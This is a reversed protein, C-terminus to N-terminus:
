DPTIESLIINLEKIADKSYKSIRANRLQNRNEKRSIEVYNRIEEKLAYDSFLNLYQKLRTTIKEKSEGSIEVELYPDTIDNFKSLEIKVDDKQFVWSKKINYYFVFMKENLFSLINKFQEITLEFEYEINQEIKDELSKSKFTIIFKERNFVRLRVYQFDQPQLYFDGMEKLIEVDKKNVKFDKVELLYELGNINGTWWFGIKEDIYFDGYDAQLKQLTDDFSGVLYKKEIEYNM